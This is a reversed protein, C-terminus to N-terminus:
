TPNNKVATATKMKSSISGESKNIFMNKVKKIKHIGANIIRGPRM